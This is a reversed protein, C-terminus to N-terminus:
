KLHKSSREKLSLDENALAIELEMFGSHKEYIENIEATTKEQLYTEIADKYFAGKQQLSINRIKEASREAVATYKDRYKKLKSALEEDLAPGSALDKSIQARKASAYFAREPTTESALTEKLFAVADTRCSFDDAQRSAIGIRQIKTDAFSEEIRSLLIDTKGYDRSDSAHISIVGSKREFIIPTFHGDIVGQAALGVKFDGKENLAITEMIKATIEAELGIFIKIGDKKQAYYDAIALLGEYQPQWYTEREHWSPGENILSFYPSDYYTGNRRAKIILNKRIIEKNYLKKLESRRQKFDFDELQESLKKVGGTPMVEAAADKLFALPNESTIFNEIFNLFDEKVSNDMKSFMMSAFRDTAPLTEDSTAVGVKDLSTKTFDIEPKLNKGSSLAIDKTDKYPGTEEKAVTFSRKVFRLLGNSQIYGVDGELFDPDRLIKAIALAKGIGFENIMSRPDADESIVTASKLKMGIVRPDLDIVKTNLSRHKKINDKDFALFSRAEIEQDIRSPDDTGDVEGDVISTSDVRPPEQTTTDTTYLFIRMADQIEKKELLSSDIFLNEIMKRLEEPNAIKLDLDEFNSLNDTIYKIQLSIPATDKTDTTSEKYNIILQELKKAEEILKM